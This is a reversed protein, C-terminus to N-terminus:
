KPLAAGQAQQAQLQRVAAEPLFDVLEVDFVLVSNAPIPGTAKDGYGLTPPLWFRYKAGKTMLKLAEAFGPVVGAVAMPTPQQSKDFVTGDTLTGTYNVLAIDADSPKAGGKGAALQKYQLGSATQTVGQASKNKILFIQAPVGTQQWPWFAAGIAATLLAGIVIGLLLSRREPRATKVPQPPIVTTM